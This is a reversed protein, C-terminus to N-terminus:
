EYLFAEAEEECFDDEFMRASYIPTNGVEIYQPTPHIESDTLKVGAVTPLKFGDAIFENM